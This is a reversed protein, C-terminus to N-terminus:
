LKFSLDINSAPRGTNQCSDISEHINDMISWLMSTCDTKEQAGLTTPFYSLLCQNEQPASPRDSPRDTPTRDRSLCIKQSPYIKKAIPSRLAHTHKSLETSLRKNPDRFSTKKNLDRFSFETCFETLVDPVQFVSLNSKAWSLIKLCDVGNLGAEFRKLKHRHFYYKMMKLASRTLKFLHFSSTVEQLCVCLNSRILKVDETPVCYNKM